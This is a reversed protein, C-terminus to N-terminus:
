GSREHKEEIKEPLHLCINEIVDIANTKLVKWNM